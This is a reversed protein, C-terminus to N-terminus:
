CELPLGLAKSWLSSASASLSGPRNRYHSVVPFPRWFRFYKYIKFIHSIANFNWPCIQHKRDRLDPLLHRCIIAVGFSLRFYRYSGWFRFYNYKPVSLTSIGVAFKPNEVMGFEVFTNGVSQSM